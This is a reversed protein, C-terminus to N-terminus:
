FIIPSLIILSFNISITLLFNYNVTPMNINMNMFTPFLLRMYIYMNTLSSLIMFFLIMNLNFSSFITAWKMLFGLLPPLGALSLIAMTLSFLTTKDKITKMQMFSFINFKNINIIISLSIITYLSFYIMWSYSTYQFMYIMWAMHSISSFALIKRLSKQNIMGLTGTMASLIIIIMLFHTTLTSMIYLPIFKQLTLLLFNPMWLIGESVQPLWMHFPSAGLKMLMSMMIMDNNFWYNMDLLTYLMFLIYLSSALSQIIFYKIMSSMSLPHKLMLPIFSMMNIELILWLFFPNNTNTVMFLSSFMFWTYMTMSPTHLM